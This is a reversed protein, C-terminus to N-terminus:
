KKSSPIVLELDAAQLSISLLEHTEFSGVDKIPITSCLSSQQNLFERQINPLDNNILKVANNIDYVSHQKLTTRKSRNPTHRPDSRCNSQSLSLVAPGIAVLPSHLEM